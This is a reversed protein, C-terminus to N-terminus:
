MNESIIAPILVRVLTGQGPTSRIQLGYEEGYTLKIRRNINYLGISSKHRKKTYNQVKALVANLTEEEMGCGNDEIEVYVVTDNIYINIHVIGDSERTELGHVIANEVIPQLLLPLIRYDELNINQQVTM